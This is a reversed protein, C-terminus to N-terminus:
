QIGKAMEYRHAAAALSALRTIAEGIDGEPHAAVALLHELLRPDLHSDTNMPADGGALSRYNRM